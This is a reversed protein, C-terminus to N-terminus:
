DPSQVLKRWQEGELVEILTVWIEQHFLPERPHRLDQQIYACRMEGFSGSLSLLEDAFIV